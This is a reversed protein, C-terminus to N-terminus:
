RAHMLPRHPELIARHSSPRRSHRTSSHPAWCTSRTMFGASAAACVWRPARAAMRRILGLASLLIPQFFDLLRAGINLDPAGRHISEFGARAVGVAIGRLTAGKWEGKDVMGLIAEALTPVYVGAYSEGTIFFENSVFQPFAAFFAQLAEASDAATKDDNTSYDAPNTSYSFGVGAPAELYLMNAISAWTQDFRVLKTADTPDTRFPGHEYIFGDLSSCGPGGNLWLVVPATEPNSEAEVLWYHLHKSPGVSLYGSFQRSPLPGQWYFSVVRSLQQM